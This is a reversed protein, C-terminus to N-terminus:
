VLAIGEQAFRNLIGLHVNQQVDMFRSYDPSLVHYVAEFQLTGEAIGQLHARDFRVDSQAQVIEQLLVPVRTVQEFPLSLPTKIKFLVRRHNMRKFNQIRSALMDSNSIIIQEGSISRIRTSKLGINEVTGQQEGVIIYDGIAFPKDLAISLSAFLDRLINQVALAVAIGTIGLSAILSTIQVNPLNDLVALVVVVWLAVRTFFGLLHVTASSQDDGSVRRRVERDVMLTILRNGWVALQLILLTFLVTRLIIELRLSVTMVLAALYLGAALVAYLRTNALLDVLMAGNSTAPQAQARTRAAARGRVILLVLVTLLFVAGAVLWQLLTNNLFTYTLINM